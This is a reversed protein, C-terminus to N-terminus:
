VSEHFVIDTTADKGHACTRARGTLGAGHLAEEQHRWQLGTRDQSLVSGTRAPCLCCREGVDGVVPVMLAYHM